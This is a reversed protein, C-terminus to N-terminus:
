PDLVKSRWAGGELQVVLRDHLRGPQGQWFEFRTPAVRYGGWTPPCPVDRGEYEATLAAYADELEVRSARPRSQHSVLAGLQSERPRMAFYAESEARSVRSVDGTIRIQRFLSPWWFLVAARPCQDLDRGKDSDYHTYFTLGNTDYQKLLVVRSAPTVEAGAGGATSLIMAAPEALRGADQEARADAFWDEFLGWPEDLREPLHDGRYTMRQNRLDSM